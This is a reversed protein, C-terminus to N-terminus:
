IKYDSYNHQRNVNSFHSHIRRGINKELLKTIFIKVKFHNKLAKRTFM